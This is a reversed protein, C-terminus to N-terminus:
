EPDNLREAGGPRGCGISRAQAAARQAARAFGQHLQERQYDYVPGLKQLATIVDAEEQACLRMAEAGIPEVPGGKRALVFAARKVCNSARERQGMYSGPAQTQPFPPRVCPDAEVRAQEDCSALAAVALLILLRRAM